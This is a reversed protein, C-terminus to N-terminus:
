VQSANWNRFALVWSPIGPNHRGRAMLVEGIETLHERLGRVIGQWQVEPLGPSDALTEAALSGAGAWWDNGDIARWFAEPDREALALAAAVEAARPHGIAELTGRLADLARWLEPGPGDGPLAGAKASPGRRKARESDRV